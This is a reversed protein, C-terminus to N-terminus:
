RLSSVLSELYNIRLSSIGLVNRALLVQLRCMRLLNCGFPSPHGPRVTTGSCKSAGDESIPTLPRPASPLQKSWRVRPAM